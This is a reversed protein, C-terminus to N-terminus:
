DQEDRSEKINWKIKLFTKIEINTTDYYFQNAVFDDMDPHDFHNEIFVPDYARDLLWYARRATLKIGEIAFFDFKEKSDDM